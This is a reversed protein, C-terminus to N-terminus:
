LVCHGGQDSDSIIAPSSNAIYARRYDNTLDYVIYMYNASTLRATCVIIIIILREPTLVARTIASIVEIVSDEQRRLTLMTPKDAFLVTISRHYAEVYLVAM